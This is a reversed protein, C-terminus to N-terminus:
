DLEIVETARPAHKPAEIRVPGALTVEAKRNFAALASQRTFGGKVSVLQLSGVLQTVRGYRGFPLLLRECDVQQGEPDVTTMVSYMPCGSDVCERATQLIWERTPAPAIEDMTKGVWSLNYAETLYRGNALARFVRGGEVDEVNWFALQQPDHMRQEPQFEELRPFTRRGALRGWYM